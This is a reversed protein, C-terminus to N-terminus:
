TILGSAKAKAIERVAEASLTRVMHGGAEFCTGNWGCSCSAHEPDQLALVHGLQDPADMTVM